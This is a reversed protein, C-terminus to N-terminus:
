IHSRTPYVRLKTRNTASSPSASLPHPLPSPSPPSGEKSFVLDPKVRKLVEKAARVGRSLLVPVSLNNRLAKPSLSRVLKVTPVGYFELKALEAARRECTDGEGGGYVADIGLRELAPLLALNPYIHGGTGGGALLIKGMFEGKRSMRAKM